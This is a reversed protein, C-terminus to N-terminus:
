NLLEVSRKTTSVHLNNNIFNLQYFAATNNKDM